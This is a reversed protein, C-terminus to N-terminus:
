SNQKQNPKGIRSLTRINPVRLGSPRKKEEQSFSLRSPTPSRSIRTSPSSPRPTPIHSTRQNPIKFSTTHPKPPTLSPICSARNSLPIRTEKKTKSKSPTPTNSRMRPSSALSGASCDSLRSVPRSSSSSSESPYIIPTVGYKAYQTVTSQSNFSNDSSLSDSRKRLTAKNNIISKTPKSNNVTSWLEVPKTVFENFGGDFSSATEDVSNLKWFDETSDDIIDLNALDPLDTEDDMDATYNANILEDLNISDVSRISGPRGDKRKTQEISICNNDADVINLVSEANETDRFSHVNMLWGKVSSTEKKDKFGNFVFLGSAQTM